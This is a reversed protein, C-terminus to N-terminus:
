SLDARLEMHAQPGSPKIQNLVQNWEISRALAKSKVFIQSNCIIAFSTLFDVMQIVRYDPTAIGSWPVELRLWCRIWGLGLLHRLSHVPFDCFQQFDRLERKCCRTVAGSVGM